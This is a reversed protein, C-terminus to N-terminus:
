VPTPQRLASDIEDIIQRAKAVRNSSNKIPRGVVLYDAGNAIAQYPSSVRKQDYSPDDAGRIGPSVLIPKWGFHKRLISARTGCTILGDCKHDLAVKSRWLVYEELTKFRGDPHVLFLDRLDQENLSTLLTLSLIKLGSGASGEKAADATVGNGNITLFKVGLRAVEAVSRKITEPVDEMKMDLFVKLNQEVLWRVVELGTAIHLQLGVKFFNITGRLEEVLEKAEDTNGVDLAFIVRDAALLDRREQVGFVEVKLRLIM